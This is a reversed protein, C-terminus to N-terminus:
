GRHDTAGALAERLEAVSFPKLLYRNAGLASVDPGLEGARYISICVLPLRSDRERLSRAVAFGEKWSPELVVADVEPPSERMPSALFLPEHGLSRAVSAVLACVDEAPELILITAM